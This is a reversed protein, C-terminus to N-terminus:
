ISERPFLPKKRLRIKPNEIWFGHAIKFIWEVSREWSQKKEDTQFKLVVVEGNNEEDAVYYDKILEKFLKPNKKSLDVPGSSCNQYNAIGLVGLFCLQFYFSKRGM